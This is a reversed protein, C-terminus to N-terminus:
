GHQDGKTNTRSIAARGREISKEYDLLMQDFMRDSPAATKPSKSLLSHAAVLHATVDKLAELPDPSAQETM